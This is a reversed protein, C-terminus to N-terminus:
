LLYEGGISFVVANVAVTAVVRWSCPLFSSVETNTTASGAAATIGPYLTLTRTQVANLAATTAGTIDVWNDTVPDRGQIKVTVTGPGAGVNTADIYLRVGKCNANFMEDSNNTGTRSASPFIVGEVNTSGAAVQASPLPSPVPQNKHMDAM